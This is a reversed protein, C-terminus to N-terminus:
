DAGMYIGAPFHGHPTSQLPAMAYVAEHAFVRATWVALTMTSGSAQHTGQFITIVSAVTLRDGNEGELQPGAKYEGGIWRFNYDHPHARMLKSKEKLAEPTGEIEEKAEGEYISYKASPSVMTQITERQM